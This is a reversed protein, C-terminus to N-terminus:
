AREPKLTIVAIEPANFLRALIPYSGLGSSILMRSGNKEYMGKMPTGRLEPFFETGSYIAGVAPLRILGGHTDGCLALDVGFSAFAAQNPIHALLISFRDADLSFKDSLSFTSSYYVNSIGYIHLESEGARLIMDDDALFHANSEGSFANAYAKKGDHEGNVVLVPCLRCLRGILSLAVAKANADDRSFMDGTVAIFDPAQSEVLRVLWRNGFGFVMGHLDTLQVIRVENSLKDSTVTVRNVTLAFTSLAYGLAVALAIACALVARHPNIRRREVVTVTTFVLRAYQANRLEAMGKRDFTNSSVEGAASTNM